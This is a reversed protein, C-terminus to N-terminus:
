KRLRRYHQSQALQATAMMAQPLLAKLELVEDGLRSLSTCMRQSIYLLAEEPSEALEREVDISAQLAELRARHRGTTRLFQMLYQERYREFGEPNTQALFAWENFNFDLDM